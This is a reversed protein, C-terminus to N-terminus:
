SVVGTASRRLVLTGLAGPEGRWGEPVWVTCDQRAVVQPGVVTEPADGQQRDLVQALTAPAAAEAVARLATVEVPAGDLRYGNRREHEEAFQEISAVRLEHSQGAYRVDLLSEVAVSGVDVRASAAVQAAAADGLQELADPIGGHATPTPWSRVLERRMPSTLLGVASLVGAAPPVLVVPIGVADALACAHLPGAGGFAVLALGTPDVGREVSVRRVAQEMQADVVTVVGEADLGARALAAAAAAVDLRGLGPFTADAPIRGLVLDADTVTPQTGGRGYGVPGPVAGASEPGVRLAGGRDLRAISGGGSGITHVDLSPLRIPLGDVERMAAPDPAGDLVLCVDTSTGGMDFTVADPHGCASAVAAAARVGAAPGSLLLAAPTAAASAVDTLGGGSTMVVVRDASSALRELYPGCVPQLFANVVTTVMREYERFEPAVEHSVSVLAGRRRLARALELEHRPDLDAHLLCIAVAEVEPPLEGLTAPDLPVVVAGHADLREAVELRLHRPVLPLARDVWPDYLSPREQRGIEIVDALGATCVLAVTAGRRELLANTAVTTGHSLLEISPTGSGALERLGSTVATGPDHPTSPIKLLAGDTGVLDTFTGGSDAGIRVAGFTGAARVATTSLVEPM